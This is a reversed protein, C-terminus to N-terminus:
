NQEYQCKKIVEFIEDEIESNFVRAIKECSNERFDDCTKNVGILAYLQIVIKLIDDYTKDSVFNDDHKYYVVGAKRIQILLLEISAYIAEYFENRNNQLQDKTTIFLAKICEVAQMDSGLCQLGGDLENLYERHTMGSNNPTSLLIDWALENIDTFPNCDIEIKFPIRCIINGYLSAFAEKRPTKNDYLESIKFIM